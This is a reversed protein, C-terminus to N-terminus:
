QQGGESAEIGALLGDFDLTMERYAPDHIPLHQVFEDFIQLTGSIQSASFDLIHCEASSECKWLTSELHSPCSEMRGINLVLAAQDWRGSFIYSNEGKPYIFSVM